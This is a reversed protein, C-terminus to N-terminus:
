RCQRPFQPDLELAKLRVRFPGQDVLDMGGESRAIADQHVGGPIRVRANGDAVRDGGHVQRGNFDVNGVDVAPLFEPVIADDSGYAQPLDRSESRVAVKQTEPGEKM